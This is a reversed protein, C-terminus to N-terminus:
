EAPALGVFFRLLLEVLRPQLELGLRQNKGAYVFREPAALGALEVDPLAARPDGHRISGVLRALAEDVVRLLHRLHEGLLQLATFDPREGVSFFLFLGFSRWRRLGRGRSGPNARCDWQLLRRAGRIPRSPARPRAMPRTWRSARPSRAARRRHVVSR